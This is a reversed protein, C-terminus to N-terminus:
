ICDVIIILHSQQFSHPKRSPFLRHGIGTHCIRYLWGVKRHAMPISPFFAISHFRLTRAKHRMQYQGSSLGATVGIGLIIFADNEVLLLSVILGSCKKVIDDPCIGPMDSGPVVLPHDQVPQSPVLLGDIIIIVEEKALRSAVTFADENTVPIIEDILDLRLVNPIFGAGIGQIKHPGPKGGELVSSAAPEVAIAKFGKKRSKIVDAIDTITEGTGVGAVM